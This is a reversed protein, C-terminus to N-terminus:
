QIAGIMRANHPLYLWPKSAAVTSAFFIRRSSQKWMDLPCWILQEILQTPLARAFVAGWLFNGSFPFRTGSLTNGLGIGDTTAEQATADTAATLTDDIWLSWGTGNKSAVVTRTDGAAFLGTATTIITKIYPVDLRLSGNTQASIYL